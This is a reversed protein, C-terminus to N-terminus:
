ALGTLSSNRRSREANARIVHRVAVATVRPWQDGLAEAIAIGSHGDAHLQMIQQNRETLDASVSRAQRPRRAAYGAKSMWCASCFRRRRWRPASFWEGCAACAVLALRRSDNSQQRRAHCAECRAGCAQCRAVALSRAGHFCARSCYTGTTKGLRLEAASVLFRVGCYECRRERVVSARAAGSSIRVSKNRIPM